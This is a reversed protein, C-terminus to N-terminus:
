DGDPEPEDEPESPLPLEFEGKAERREREAQARAEVVRKQHEMVIDSVMDPDILLAGEAELTVTEVFEDIVSKSKGTGETVRTHDHHTAKGYVLVMVKSESPVHMPNMAMSQSLGDGTKTIKAQTATVPLGEYDPIEVAELASPYAYGRENVLKRRAM